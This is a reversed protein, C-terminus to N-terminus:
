KERILEIIKKVEDNSLFYCVQVGQRKCDIIKSKKMIALHQSIVPQIINLKESMLLVNCEQKEYLGMAIKLRIPHSLAKFIKIFDDTKTM